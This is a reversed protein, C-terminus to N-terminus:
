CGEKFYEIDKIELSGVEVPSCLKLTV